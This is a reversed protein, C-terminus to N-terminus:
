RAPRKQLMSFATAIGSSDAIPLSRFGQSLDAPDFLAGQALNPALDLQVNGALLRGDQRVVATITSTYPLSPDPGFGALNVPVSTKDATIEVTILPRGTFGGTGGGPSTFWGALAASSGWSFLVVALLLFAGVGKLQNILWRM